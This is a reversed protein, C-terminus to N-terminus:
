QIPRSRSQTAHALMTVLDHMLDDIHEIGVSLRILTPPTGYGADIEYRARREMTTEVGGLSTCHTILRVGACVREADEATGHLEFAIM